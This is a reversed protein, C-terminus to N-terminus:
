VSTLLDELAERGARRISDKLDQPGVLRVERQVLEAISPCRLPSDPLCVTGGRVVAKVAERGDRLAVVADARGTVTLDALRRRVQQDGAEAASLIPGAHIFGVIRAIVEHGLPSLVLVTSQPTLKAAIVASMATLATLISTPVVNAPTTLLTEGRKLPEPCWYRAGVVCTRCVGCSRDVVALGNRVRILVTGRHFPSTSM